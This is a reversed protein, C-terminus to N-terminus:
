ASRSGATDNDTLAFVPGGSDGKGSVIQPPNLVSKAGITTICGLLRSCEFTADSPTSSFVATGVVRDGGTLWTQGIPGCHFATLIYHKNFGPDDVAFGTSCANDHEPPVLLGGAWYPPVDAERSLLRPEEAPVVTVGGGAVASALHPLGAGLPRAAPGALRGAPVAVGVEIGSADARQTVTLV